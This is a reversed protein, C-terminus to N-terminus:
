EVKLMRHHSQWLGHDIQLLYTGISLESLDLNFQTGSVYQEKLMRGNVDYVRISNVEDETIVNLTTTFPNPYLSCFFTNENIDLTDSIRIEQVNEGIM